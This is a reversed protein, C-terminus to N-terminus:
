SIGKRRTLTASPVAGPPVGSSPSGPLWTPARFGAPALSLLRGSWTGVIIGQGAPVPAASVWDDTALRWIERGTHADVAVLFGAHHHAGATASGGAYIANTAGAVRPPGPGPGTQTRWRRNGTRADFAYVAGTESSILVTDGVITPVSLVTAEDTQARWAM